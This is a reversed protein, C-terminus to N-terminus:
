ITIAVRREGELSAPLFPKAPRGDLFFSKQGTRAVEVHLMAGRYPINSLSLKSVSPPLHPRFHIGDPRCDMGLLCKHVLCVYSTAGWTTNPVSEWLSLHRQYYDEQVGGYPLGTVPHYIETFQGDRAARAGLRAFERDFM